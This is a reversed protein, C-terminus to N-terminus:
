EKLIRYILINYIFLISNYLKIVKKRNLEQLKKYLAFTIFTISKAEFGVTDLTVSNYKM